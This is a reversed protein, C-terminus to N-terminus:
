DFIASHIQTPGGTLEAARGRTTCGMAASSAVQRWMSGGAADSGAGRTLAEIGV